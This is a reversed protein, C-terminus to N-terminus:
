RPVQDANARLQQVFPSLCRVLPKVKRADMQIRIGESAGDEAIKKEAKNL